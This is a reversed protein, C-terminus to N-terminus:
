AELIQKSSGRLEFDGELLAGVRPKGKVSIANLIVDLKIANYLHLTCMYVLEGTYQNIMEEVSVIKGRIRATYGGQSLLFTTPFKKNRLKEIQWSKEKQQLWDEPFVYGFSGIGVINVEITDGIAHGPTNTFDYFGFVLHRADDGDKVRGEVIYIKPSERLPVSFNGVIVEQTEGRKFIFYDISQNVGEKDDLLSLHISDGIAVDVVGSKTRPLTSVKQYFLNWQKNLTDNRGFMLRTFGISGIGPASIPNEPIDEQANRLAKSYNFYDFSRIFFVEPKYQATLLNMGIIFLQFIYFIFLLPLIATRSDICYYGITIATLFFSYYLFARRSKKKGPFAYYFYYYAFYFIAPFVITSATVYIILFKEPLLFIAKLVFPVILIFFVFVLAIGIASSFFKRVSM